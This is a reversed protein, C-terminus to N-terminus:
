PARRQDEHVHGCECTHLVAAPCEAGERRYYERRSPRKPGRPGLPRPPMVLDVVQARTTDPNIVGQALYTLLQPEALKTLEYLTGWSCPLRQVHTVNSLVPHEAIKMLRFATERSFRLQRSQFLAQWEGHRLRQKAASLVEGTHLIAMLSEDWFSNIYQAWELPTTFPWDASSWKAPAGPPVSWEAVTEAHQTQTEPTM